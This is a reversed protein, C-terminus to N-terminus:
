NELASKIAAITSQVEKKDPYAKAQTDLVTRLNAVLLYFERQLKNTEELDAHTKLYRIRNEISNILPEPKQKPM